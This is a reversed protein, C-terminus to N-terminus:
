RYIIDSVTYGGMVSQLYYWQFHLWGDNCIYLIIDSVTYGDSGIFLIVSLAVVWWQMYITDSVTCGGMVAKLLCSQFHVWWQRYIIDSVTCGGMVAYIYYWQCHLWGDSGIFLIVLLALVWWQRQIVDSVTYGDSGILSIVAQGSYRGTRGTQRSVDQLGQIYVTFFQLMQM